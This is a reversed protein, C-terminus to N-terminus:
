FRPTIPRRCLPSHNELLLCHHHLPPPSPAFHDFFPPHVSEPPSPPACLNLSAFSIYGSTQSGPPDECSRGEGAEYGLGGEDAIWGGSGSSLGSSFPLGDGMTRARGPTGPQSGTNSGGEQEESRNIPTVDEDVGDTRGDEAGCRSSCRAVAVPPASPSPDPHSSSGTTTTTPAHHHHHSRSRGLGSQSVARLVNSLTERRSLDSDSEVMRGSVTVGSARTVASAPTPSTPLRSSLLPPPPSTHTRKLRASSSALSSSSSSSAPVIFHASATISRQAIPRHPKGPLSNARSLTSPLLQRSSSSFSSSSASSSSTSCIIPTALPSPCPKSASPRHVTLNTKSQPPGRPSRPQRHQQQQQHHDTSYSSSSRHKTIPARHQNQTSASWSHHHHHHHHHNYYTRETTPTTSHPRQINHHHHHTFQPMTTQQQPQQQQQIKM